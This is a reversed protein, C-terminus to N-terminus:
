KKPTACGTEACYEFVKMCANFLGTVHSQQMKIPAIQSDSAKLAMCFLFFSLLRQNENPPPFSVRFHSANTHNLEVFALLKICYPFVQIKDKCTM